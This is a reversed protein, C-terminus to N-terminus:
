HSTQQYYGEGRAMTLHNQAAIFIEKAVGDRELQALSRQYNVVAIFGVGMLIGIIAVTVLMEAMTMGRSSRTKIYAKDMKKFYRGIM